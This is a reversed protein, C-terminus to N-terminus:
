EIRKANKTDILAAIRPPNNKIKFIKFGSLCGGANRGYPGPMYKCFSIIQNSSYGVIGGCVLFPQCAFMRDNFLNEMLFQM